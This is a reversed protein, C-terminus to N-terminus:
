RTPPPTMKQREPQWLVELGENQRALIRSAVFLFDSLRNIYAITTADMEEAGALTVATRECRRCVTRAVHCCAAAFGGGPLVFERLPPLADNFYDLWQELWDVHTTDISHRGPICLDGGLDFLQHQIEKLCTALEAPMTNALVMGLHSNLEDLEGYVQIRLHNKDVRSGDALGTSGTDGTRTYIKSLRHAM